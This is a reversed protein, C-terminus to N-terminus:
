PDLNWFLPINIRLGGHLVRGRCSFGGNVVDLDGSYNKQELISHSGQFGAWNSGSGAKSDSEIIRDLPVLGSGAPICIRIIFDQRLFFGKVKKSEVSQSSTM